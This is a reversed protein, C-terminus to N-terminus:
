NKYLDAVKELEKEFNFSTDVFNIGNQKCEKEDVSGIESFTIEFM